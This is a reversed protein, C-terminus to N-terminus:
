AWAACALWPIETLHAPFVEQEMGLGFDARHLHSPVLSVDIRHLPHSAHCEVICDRCMMETGFCDKCRYIPEGEGDCSCQSRHM